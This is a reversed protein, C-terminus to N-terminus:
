FRGVSEAVRKLADGRFAVKNGWYAEAPLKALEEAVAMARPMLQDPEVAEHILAAKVAQDVDLVMSLVGASYVYNKNLRSILIEYGWPPFIEGLATENVAYKFKGLTGISYDCAANLVAGLALAHGTVAAVLPIRSSFLRSVTASGIATMEHRDSLNESQMTKLDFGASFVGDRGTLIIARSGKEAEDLRDNLETLFHASGANVKGDDMRVIAIDNEQTLEIM